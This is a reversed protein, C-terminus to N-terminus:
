EDERAISTIEVAGLSEAQRLADRLDNAEFVSEAQFRIRFRQRAAGGTRASAPGVLSPTGPTASARQAPGRTPKERTRSSTRLAATGATAPSRSDAPEAGSPSSSRRRAASATTRPPKSQTSSGTRGRLAVGHRQVVRYLSSEGIGFRERIDATPTSTEAYLRAIAREEDQSLRRRRSRAQRTTNALSEQDTDASGDVGTEVCHEFGSEENIPCKFGTLARRILMSSYLHPKQPPKQPNAKRGANWM